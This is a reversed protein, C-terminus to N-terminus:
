VYTPNGSGTDIQKVELKGTSKGKNISEVYSSIVCVFTWARGGRSLTIQAYDYGNGLAALVNKPTGSSDNGKLIETLTISTESETIVYNASRRDISQINETTNQQTVEIGDISGSLSQPNGSSSSSVTVAGAADITVGAATIATVNRGLLWNPVAM